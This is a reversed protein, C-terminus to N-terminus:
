IVLIGLTLAPKGLWPSSTNRSYYIFPFSICKKNLDKNFLDFTAGLMSDILAFLCENSLGVDLAEMPQETNITAGEVADLLTDGLALSRM